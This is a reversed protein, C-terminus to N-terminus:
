RRADDVGHTLGASPFPLARRCGPGQIDSCAHASKGHPPSILHIHLYAEMASATDGFYAGNWTDMVRGRSSILVTTPTAAVKYDTSFRPPAVYVPYRIDHADMYKRLDPEAGSLSVGIFRYRRTSQTALAAANEVNKECWECRPTFIYLITPNTQGAYDLTWPSGDISKLVESPVSEGVRLARESKLVGVAAELQHVRHILTFNTIASAVLLGFTVLLIPAVIGRDAVGRGDRDHM